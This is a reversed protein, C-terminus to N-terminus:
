MLSLHSSAPTCILSHSVMACARVMDGASYGYQQTQQSSVGRVSRTDPSEPIEGGSLDDHLWQTGFQHEQNAPVPTAEPMHASLYLEMPRFHDQYLEYDEDVLMEREEGMEELGPSLFEQMEWSEKGNDIEKQSSQLSQGLDLFPEDVLEEKFYPEDRFGQL